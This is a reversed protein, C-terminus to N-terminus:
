RTRGQDATAGSDRTLMQRAQTIVASVATGDMDSRVLVRLGLFLGLLAKATATPDLTPGASGDAQALHLNELFFREVLALSANVRARVEPDHPSLELATNVLLCGRPLDAGPAPDAAAQFVALIADRPALGDAAAALFEERYTRDYHDLCALFLGRKDGFGAYLSGRNVGTREVLDSIATAEFGAHWFARTARDLLDARDYQKEAPM